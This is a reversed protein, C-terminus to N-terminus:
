HMEGVLTSAYAVCAQYGPKLKKQRCFQAFQEPDVICKQIPLGLGSLRAFSEKSVRLWKDFTQPLPHRSGMMALIRPYDVERFWPFPFPSRNDLM